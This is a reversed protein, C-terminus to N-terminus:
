WNWGPDLLRPPRRCSRRRRPSRHRRCSRRWRSTSTVPAAVGCTVKTLYVELPILRLRDVTWQGRDGAGEGRPRGRSFASAEHAGFESDKHGFLAKMSGHTGIPKEHAARCACHPGANTPTRPAPLPRRSPNSLAPRPASTHLPARGFRAAVRRWPPDAEWAASREWLGSPLCGRGPLNRSRFGSSRRECLRDEPVVPDAGARAGNLSWATLGRRGPHATRHRRPRPTVQCRRRIQDQM